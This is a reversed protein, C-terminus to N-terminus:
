EYDITLSNGTMTVSAKRGFYLPTNRGKLHGVPLGFCIPFEYGSLLNLIVSQFAGDINQDTPSVYEEVISNSTENGILPIKFDGVFLAKIKELKGARLLGYMMREISMLNEGIDELFLIRNETCIESASGILNHLISLNGGVIQGM